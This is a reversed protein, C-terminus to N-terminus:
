KNIWDMIADYWSGSNDKVLSNMGISAAAATGAVALGGIILGVWGVPTAVILLGLSSLAASGAGVTISGAAVSTAFSTSEIFMDREWNGDAQDLDRGFNFRGGYLNLSGRSSLPNLSYKYSVLRVWQSIDQDVSTISQLAELIKQRRTARQAELHYFFRIQYETLNADIKKWTRLDVDTFQDLVYKIEPPKKAPSKRGQIRGSPIAPNHRGKKVM